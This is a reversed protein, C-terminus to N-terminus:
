KRPDPRGNAGVKHSLEPEMRLQRDIEAWHKELHERRKKRAKFEEYIAQALVTYDGPKVSSLVETKDAM